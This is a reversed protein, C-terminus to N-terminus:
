HESNVWRDNVRLSSVVVRTAGGLLALLHCIPNLEANLPNFLVSLSDRPARLVAFCYANESRWLFVFILM